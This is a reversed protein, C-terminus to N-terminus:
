NRREDKLHDLCPSFFLSLLFSHQGLSNSDLLFHEYVGPTHFAHLLTFANCALSSEYEIFIYPGCQTRSVTSLVRSYFFLSPSLIRRTSVYPPPSLGLSLSSSWSGCSSVHPLDRRPYHKIEDFPCCPLRSLAAHKVSLLVESHLLIRPVCSTARDDM